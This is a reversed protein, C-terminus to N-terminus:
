TSTRRYSPCVVNFLRSRSLEPHFGSPWTYSRIHPHPLQSLFSGGM